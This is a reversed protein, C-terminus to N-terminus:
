EKDMRELIINEVDSANFLNFKFMRRNTHIELTDRHARRVNVKIIEKIFIIINNGEIRDEFVNIASQKIIIIENIREIIRIILPIIAILLIIFFRRGELFHTIFILTFFIVVGPGLVATLFIESFPIRYKTGSILVKSIQHTAIHSSENRVVQSGIKYGCGACFQSDDPIQKGCKSCFM